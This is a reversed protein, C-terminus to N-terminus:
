SECYMEYATEYGFTCISPIYDRIYAVELTGVMVLEFRTFM